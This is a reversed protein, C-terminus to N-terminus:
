RLGVMEELYSQASWGDVGADYNIQWWPMGNLVQGTGGVITGAAKTPQTGLVTSALGPASRVNLKATGVVQVRDGVAFGLPVPGSGTGSGPPVVPADGFRLVWTDAIGGCASATIGCYLNRVDLAVFTDTLQDAVLTWAAISGPGNPVPQFRWSKTAESKIWFGAPSPTVPGIWFYLEGSAARRDWARFPQFQSVLADYAPQGVTLTQDWVVSAAGGDLNYTFLRNPPVSTSTSVPTMMLYATRGPGRVTTTLKGSFAWGALSPWAHLYQKTTVTGNAAFTYKYVGRAAGNASDSAFLYVAGQGADDFLIGGTSGWTVESAYKNRGALLTWGEVQSWAMLGNGSMFLLRNRKTDITTNRYAHHVWPKGTPSYGQVATAGGKIQRWTTNVTGDPHYPFPCEVEYPLTWTNAAIDYIGLDNGPTGAHGGGFSYVKGLGAALGSFSRFITGDTIVPRPCVTGATSKPDSASNGQVGFLYPQYIMMPQVTQSTWTQAGTSSGFLLVLVAALAGLRM